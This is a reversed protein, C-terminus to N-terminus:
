EFAGKRVMRQTISTIATRLESLDVMGVYHKIIRGNEDLLFGNPTYRIGFANVAEGELDLAIPYPIALEQKMQVVFDPRDYPMAVAIIEFGSPALERYLTSLLPIEEVCNPCTTAWFTIFVPRGALDQLSLKRGDILQFGLQPNPQLREDAHVVQNNSLLSGVLLLLGLLSYANLKRLLPRTM